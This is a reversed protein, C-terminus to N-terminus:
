DVSLNTRRLYDTVSRNVAAPIRSLMFFQVVPTILPRYSARRNLLKHLTKTGGFMAKEMAGDGGSTWQRTALMPAMAPSLRPFMTLTVRGLVIKGVDGDMILDSARPTWKHNASMFSRDTLKRDVTVEMGGLRNKIITPGRGKLYNRLTAKNVFYRSSRARATKGTMGWRRVMLDKSRAYRDSLPKWSLNGSAFLDTGRTLDSGSIGPNAGPQPKDMLSVIIDMMREAEGTAARRVRDELRDLFRPTLEIAEAVAGATILKSIDEEARRLDSQNAISRRVGGIQVKM